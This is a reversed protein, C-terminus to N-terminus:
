CDLAAISAGNQCCRLVSHGLVTFSLLLFRESVAGIEVRVLLVYRLRRGLLVCHTVLLRTGPTLAACNALKDRNLLTVGCTVVLALILM